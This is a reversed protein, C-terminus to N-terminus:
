ILCRQLDDPIDLLVPGSRAEKAIQIAEELMPIVEEPEKPQKAWKTIGKVMGIIDTEQFGLQRVQLSGKLRSRTQQGTIFLVPISDFYASAIGTILNTAGPGSTVIACGMGKIRAYADAQFSAAQENQPPIIKLGANVCGHILHLSAGGSICFVHQVHKALFLGVLDSVKTTM